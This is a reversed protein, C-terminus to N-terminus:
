SIGLCGNVAASAARASPILRSVSRRQSRAPLSRTSRSADLRRMTDAASISRSRAGVLSSVIEARFRKRPTTRETSTSPKRARTSISTVSGARTTAIM